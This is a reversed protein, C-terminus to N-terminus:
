YVCPGFIPLRATLLSPTSGAHRNRRRSAPPWTLNGPRM